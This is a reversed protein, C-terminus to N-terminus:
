KGKGEHNHQDRAKITWPDNQRRIEDHIENITEQLLLVDCQRRRWAHTNKREADRLTVARGLKEDLVRLWPPIHANCADCLRDPTGFSMIAPKHKDCVVTTTTTM